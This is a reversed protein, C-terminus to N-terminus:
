GPLRGAQVGVSNATGVDSGAAELVYIQSQPMVIM